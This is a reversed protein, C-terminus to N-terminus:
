TRRVRREAKERQAQASRAARLHQYETGPLVCAGNQSRGAAVIEGRPHAARCRDKAADKTEAKVVHQVVGLGPAKVFVM